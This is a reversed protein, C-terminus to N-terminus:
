RKGSLPCGYNNYMDLMSALPEADGADVAAAVEDILETVGLPFDVDPHAANLLAATAHRGLKDFKGGGTRLAQMLTRDPSFADVGFLTDFDDDPSFGAADWSNAHNKWYGPSCGETGGAPPEVVITLRCYSTAEGDSLFLRVGCAVECSASTDIRLLTIPSTPDDITSNPCGQWMFTLDDGDPDFSLSADLQYVTEDGQCEITDILGTQQCDPGFCCVPPQNDRGTGGDPALLDDSSVGALFPLLLPLAFLSKM